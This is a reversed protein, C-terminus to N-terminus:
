NALHEVNFRTLEAILAYPIPKNWPLQIAGKSTKYETLRDAFTEIALPMPYLGLHNKMAAFHMIARGQKFTPMGYSITESAEPAAEAITRRVLELIQRQEGSYDALYEDITEPSM